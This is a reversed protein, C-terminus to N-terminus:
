RALPIKKAKKLGVFARAAAKGKQGSPADYAAETMQRSVLGAPMWLNVSSRLFSKASRELSKESKDIEEQSAGIAFDMGLAGANWVTEMGKQIQMAVPNSFFDFGSPFPGVLVSRLATEKGWMKSMIGAAVTGSLAWNFARLMNDSPKEGMAMWRTMAQGYNMWWSQFTTAARGAAGLRQLALPADDPGYLFQTNAVVDRVHETWAEYWKGKGVLNEINYRATDSRNQVQINHLFKRAQSADPVGLKSHPTGYSSSGGGADKIGISKLGKLWQDKAAGSSWMRNWLSDSAKYATLTADVVGQYTPLEFGLKQRGKGFRMFKLQREYDPLPDTFVKLQRMEDRHAKSFIYRFGKVLHRFGNNGLEAPTMVLPQFMNRATSFPKFGLFGSMAANQIIQGANMLRKPTMTLGPINDLLDALAVDANTPLGLKKGLWHSAYAQAQQSPMENIHNIADDYVEYYGTTERAHTRSYRTIADEYDVVPDDMIHKTRQQAYYAEQDKPLKGVVRNAMDVEKKAVRTFYNELYKNPIM